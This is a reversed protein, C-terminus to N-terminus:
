VLKPDTLGSLRDAANRAFKLTLKKRRAANLKIDPAKRIIEAGYGDAIILGTDNPLLDTPFEPDVAWFFRDCWDLYGHWKKDTQFDARGSKCEIVWIQGKPGIAMIDVRLGSIPVFEELSCFDHERLHRCVGRAILQGKTLTNPM